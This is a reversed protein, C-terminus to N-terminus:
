KATTFQGKILVHYPSKSCKFLHEKHFGNRLVQALTCIRKGCEGVEQMTLMKVCM